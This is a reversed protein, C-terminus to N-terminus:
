NDYMDRLHRMEANKMAKMLADTVEDDTATVHHYHIETKEQELLAVQQKLVNVEKKLNEIEEEYNM